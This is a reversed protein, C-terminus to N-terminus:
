DEDDTDDEVATTARKEGDVFRISYSGTKADKEAKFNDLSLGFNGLLSNGLDKMKDVMERKMEERRAAVVPTLRKTAARAAADRPALTATQEWDELAGEVDGLAERATARRAYAKVYTADIALAADCDKVADEYRELKLWCAARNARYTAARADVARTRTGDRATAGDDGGDRGDDDDDDDDDDDRGRARTLAATYARAADAYRGDAFAANGERKRAEADAARRRADADGDDGDGDGDRAARADLEVLDVM